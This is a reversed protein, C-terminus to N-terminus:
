NVSQNILLKNQIAIKTIGMTAIKQRKESLHSALTPVAALSPVRRYDRAIVHRCSGKSSRAVIDTANRFHTADRLIFSRAMENREGVKNGQIIQKQKMNVFEM